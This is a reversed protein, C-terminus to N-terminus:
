MNHPPFTVTEIVHVNDNKWQCLQITRGELRGFHRTGLWAGTNLYVGEPWACLEPMHSHGMVVLNLPGDQLLRRAHTRLAPAIDPNGLRADLGRKVMRALGMGWDGPLLTRYLAVPVPHRLLIKALRSHLPAHPLADGHIVQLRMGQTDTQFEDRVLHVGLETEFFDRHWPDHNGVVYTVPLGRDTWSALVGLFRTAGKPILAAYEIWADFVDGGLILGEVRSEHARLCAVLAAEAARDM